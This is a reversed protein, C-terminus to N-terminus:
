VFGLHGELGFKGFGSRLRVFSPGPGLVAWLFGVSAQFSFLGSPDKGLGNPKGVKGNKLVVEFPEFTTFIQLYSSRVSSFCTCCFPLGGGSM